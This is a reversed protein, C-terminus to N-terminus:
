KRPKPEDRNQQNFFMLREHYKKETIKNFSGGCIGSTRAAMPAVCMGVYVDADDSKAIAGCKWCQWYSM